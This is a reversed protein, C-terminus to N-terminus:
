SDRVVRFLIVTVKHCAYIMGLGLGAWVAEFWRGQIGFFGLCSFLLFAMSFYIAVVFGDVLELMAGMKRLAEIGRGSSSLLIAKASILFGIMVSGVTLSAGLLADDNQPWNLDLYTWLVAGVLVALYFPRLTDRFLIKYNRQNM